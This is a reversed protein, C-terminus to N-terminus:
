LAWHRTLPEEEDTGDVPVLAFPEVVRVADILRCNPDAQAVLDKLIQIFAFFPDGSYVAPTQCFSPVNFAAPPPGTASKWSEAVLAETDTPWPAVLAAVGSVIVGRFPNLAITVSLAVVAAADGVSGVPAITILGDETVALTFQAECIM